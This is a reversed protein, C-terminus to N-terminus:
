TERTMAETIQASGLGLGAPINALGFDKLLENTGAFAIVIENGNKYAAASFGTTPDDPINNGPVRQLETWGQTGDEFRNERTRFYAWGSLLAYDLKGAM